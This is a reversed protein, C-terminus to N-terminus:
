TVVWRLLSKPSLIHCLVSRVPNMWYSWSVFLFTCTLGPWHPETPQRFLRYVLLDHTWNGTLACAQTALKTRPQPRYLLFDILTEREFLQKEGNREVERRRENYGITFYYSSLFIMLACFQSKYIYIVKSLHNM